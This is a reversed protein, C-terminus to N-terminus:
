MEGVTKSIDRLGGGEFYSGPVADWEAQWPWKGDAQSIFGLLKRNLWSTWM